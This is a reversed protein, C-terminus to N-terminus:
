GGGRGGETGSVKVSCNEMQKKRMDSAGDEQLREMEVGGGGGYGGVGIKVEFM